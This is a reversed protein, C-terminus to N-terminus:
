LFREKIWEVGKIWNVPMEESKNIGGGNIGFNIRM